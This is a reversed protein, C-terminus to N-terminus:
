PLLQRQQGLLRKATNIFSQVLFLKVRYDFNVTGATGAVKFHTRVCFIKHMIM